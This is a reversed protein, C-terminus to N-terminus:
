DKAHKKVKLNSIDLIPDLITLTAEMRDIGIHIDVNTVLDLKEGTDADSINTGMPTGDSVIRLKM